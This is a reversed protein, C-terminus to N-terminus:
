ENETFRVRRGVMSGAGTYVMQGVKVKGYTRSRWKKDAVDAAAAFVVRSDLTRRVPTSPHPTPRHLPPARESPPPPMPAIYHIPKLWLVNTINADEPQHLALDSVQLVQLAIM